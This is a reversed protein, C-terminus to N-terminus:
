VALQSPTEGRAAAEAAAAIRDARTTDRKAQKIWFLIGQKKTNSFDEFTALAGPRAVLAERLDDPVIMDEVDDLFEWMGNAKAREIAAIGAPTMSGERILATVRRKNAGNWMSAPKRRSYYQRYREDDIRQVKSDIWGFCLAELVASEYDISRTASSKKHFILWISDLRDHNEELWRRWTPRDAFFLQEDPSPENAYGAM